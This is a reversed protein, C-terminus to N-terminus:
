RLLAAALIAFLALGGYLVLSMVANYGFVTLVRKWFKPNIIDSQPIRSELINLRNEVEKAWERSLLEPVHPATTSETSEELSAGCKPCYKFDANVSSGCESCEYQTDNTEM